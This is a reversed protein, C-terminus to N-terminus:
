ESSMTASWRAKMARRAGQAGAFFVAVEGRFFPVLEQVVELESLDSEPDAGPVKASWTDMLVATDPARLKSRIRGLFGPQQLDAVVELGADGFGAAFARGALDGAQLGSKLGGFLFELGHVLDGAAM